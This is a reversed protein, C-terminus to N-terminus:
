TIVMSGGGGQGCGLVSATFTVLAVLAVKVHFAPQVSVTHSAWTCSAPPPVGTVGELGPMVPVGVSVRLSRLTPLQSNQTRASQPTLPGLAQTPGKVKVIMALSLQALGVGM